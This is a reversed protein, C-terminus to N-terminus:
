ECYMRVALYVAKEHEPPLGGAAYVGGGSGGVSLTLLTLGEEQDM